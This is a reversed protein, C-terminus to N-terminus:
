DEGVLRPQGHVNLLRQSFGNLAIEQYDHGADSPWCAGFSLVEDGTNAVRHATHAPIYHLSGAKVREAWIKRNRDMLLLIGEGRIGWYFESRDSLAHFHGRTMFYESGVQGPHIKTIGFFLGGLTGERVPFYVAVDYVLRDKPMAMRAPEDLFVNTLDGIRTSKRRVEEGQLEDGLFQITTNTM